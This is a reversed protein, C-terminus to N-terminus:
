IVIIGEHIAFLVLQAINKIEAKEFISSRHNEVTKISIGLSEAIEKNTKGSCAMRIVATEKNTFLFNNKEKKPIIHKLADDFYYGKESVCMIAKELQEVTANKPLFGKANLQISRVIFDTENFYSLMLCKIEPHSKRLLTLTEFGDMVPMELDLLLIDITYVELKRLLELGNPVDFVVEFKDNLVSKLGQRLLDHDDAIAIRIKGM